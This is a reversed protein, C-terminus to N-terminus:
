PPTVQRGRVRALYRLIAFQVGREDGVALTARYAAMERVNPPPAGYVGYGFLTTSFEVEWQEPADAHQQQRTM